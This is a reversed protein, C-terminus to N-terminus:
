FGSQTLGGSKHVIIKTVFKRIAFAPEIEVDLIGFGATITEDTNNQRNMTVKYATIGGNVQITALFSGVRREIEERLEETNNDFLYFELIDDIGDEITILLDRLSLNNFASRTKQYAMLDDFITYGANQKWVIPNLGLEALYGRDEETFNYELTGSAGTVSFNGYKGAVPNYKSGDFHKNVFRNSIGAAPPVAVNKRNVRVIPYPTFFGAYKSGNEESPLSFRVSPGLSLNGGDKIFRAQVPPRPDVESPLDTFRPDTSQKFEGISPGNMIALCRQKKKALSTLYNKPFCEASLGGSFTDVIYRFRINDNDALAKYLNTGPGAVGLIKALQTQRNLFNGPLHYDGINLGDLSAINYNSVFRELHKVLLVKDGSDDYVYIENSASVTHTGDGNNVINTIKTLFKTPISDVIQETAIYDGVEYTSLATTTLKVSKKDTTLSGSVIAVGNIINEVDLTFSFNSDNAPPVGLTSASLNEDSYFTAKKVPIGDSDQINEIKVYQSGTVEGNQYVGSEHDKYANSGSYFYLSTGGVNATLDPDPSYALTWQLTTSNASQLVNYNPIVVDYDDGSIGQASLSSTLDTVVIEIENNADDLTSTKITAYLPTKTAAASTKPKFYVQSGVPASYKTYAIATITNAALNTDDYDYLATTVENSKNKNRVTVYLATVKDGLSNTEVKEYADVTEFYVPVANALSYDYGPFVSNGVIVNAKFNNYTTTAVANASSPKEIRIQNNLIGKDTSTNLSKITVNSLEVTSIVNALTKASVATPYTKSTDMNQRYSLFDIETVDTVGFKQALKHGVMDFDSDTSLKTEYNDLVEKNISAYLGTITIGQNVIADISWNKGNGDVVDPIVSGVYSGLFNVTEDSLFDNIKTKILGNKDFYKSYLPDTSLKAYDDWDGEFAIVEIFFDNMNDFDKMYLPVNGSGFFERATLDFGQVTAKRFITSVKKQGLNVVSFLKGSSSANLRTIGDFNEKDLEWFGEKNYFSSYLARINKSNKESVDLSISKFEVEDRPSDVDTGNNTPLLALALVPGAELATFLSRHFFSGRDELFTDIDGFINIAENKSNIFTPKNYVGKRSFGVILRLTTTNVETYESADVEVFYVGPAKFQSLDLIKNSSPM